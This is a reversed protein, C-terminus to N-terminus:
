VGDKAEQAWLMAGASAVAVAIVLLFGGFLMWGDGPDAAFQSGLANLQPQPPPADAAVHSGAYWSGASILALLVAAGFLRRVTGDM